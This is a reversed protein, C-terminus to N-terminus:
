GDGDSLLPDHEGHPERIAHHTEALLGFVGSQDREAIGHRTEVRGRSPYFGAVILREPNSRPSTFSVRRAVPARRTGTSEVAGEPPCTPCRFEVSRARHAKQDTRRRVSDAASPAGRRRIRRRGWSSSGSVPQSLCSKFRRGGPYSGSSSGPQEVGCLWMLLNKRM